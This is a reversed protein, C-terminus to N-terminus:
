QCWWLLSFIIKRSFFSFQVIIINVKWSNTFLDHSALKVPYPMCYVRLVNFRCKMMSFTTQTFFCWQSNCSQYYLKWKQNQSSPQPSCTEIWFGLGSGTWFQTSSACSCVNNLCHKVKDYNTNDWSRVHFPRDLAVGLARRQGKWPRHLTTSICAVYISSSVM